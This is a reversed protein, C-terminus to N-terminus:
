RERERERERERQRQRERTIKREEKGGKGGSKEKNISGSSYGKGKAIGM